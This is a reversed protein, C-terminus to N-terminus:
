GCCYTLDQEGATKKGDGNSAGVAMTVSGWDCLLKGFFAGIFICIIIYGNFYMALLMVFYAVAFTTMHILARICQQIATPRFTVISQQLCTPSMPTSESVQGTFATTARRHFQQLMHTDYEKGLRRLFELLVVLFVVGICSAAFMGESEIYWSESLFCADVTYWNWLMSIQCGPGDENMGGHDM